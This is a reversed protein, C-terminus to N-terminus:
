SSKCLSIFCQCTSYRRILHEIMFITLLIKIGYPSCKPIGLRYNVELPDQTPGPIQNTVPKFPVGPLIMPPGMPVEPVNWNRAALQGMENLLKFKSCLISKNSMNLIYM